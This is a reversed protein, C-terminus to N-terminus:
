VLIVILLVLVLIVLITELSALGAGGAKLEDLKGAILAIEADSLSETRAAAEDPDVGEAELRERVEGREIFARVQARASELGDQAAAPGEIVAETSVMGAEAPGATLWLGAVAALAVRGLARAGRSLFDAMIDRERIDADGEGSLTGAM